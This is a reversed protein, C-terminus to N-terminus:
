LCVLDIDYDDEDSIPKIVTGLNVSGQPMIKVDLSPDCDGLWKGVAGYSKIAKDLMTDSISIEDVIYEYLKNIYNKQEEAM